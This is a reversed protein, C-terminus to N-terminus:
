RGNSDWHKVSWMDSTMVHITILWWTCHSSDHHIVRHFMIIHHTMTHWRILGMTYHSSDWQTTHHTVNHLTILWITYHSSDYQTAHHAMNHLTILWITYHSSDCQTTHHAMNHLPSSDCQTIHHAMNHLTIPWSAYHTPQFPQLRVLAPTSSSSALGRLNVMEVWVPVPLMRREAKVCVASSSCSLQSTVDVTWSECLSRVLFM